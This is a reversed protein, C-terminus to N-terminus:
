LMIPFFCARSRRDPGLSEPNKRLDHRIVISGSTMQDQLRRIRFNMYDQLSSAGPLL